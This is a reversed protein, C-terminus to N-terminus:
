KPSARPNAPLDGRGSVSFDRQLAGEDYDDRLWDLIEKRQEADRAFCSLFADAVGARTCKLHGFRISLHRSAEGTTSGNLLLFLAAALGTRDAGSKCYILAPEEMTRYIEALRLIDERRPARTAKLQADCLTLGLRGATERVLADSGNACGRRLNILTKLGHRRAHSALWGPTPQNCRYLRGPIVPAFNTWITRFVGHDVLLSDTWANARGRWSRLDGSFISNM